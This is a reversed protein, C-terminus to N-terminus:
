PEAREAAVVQNRGAGKARYLAADADQILMEATCRPHTAARSAVGISVTLDCDGCRSGQVQTRVREALALAGEADTAPLIVVFEEGGYRAATDSERVTSRIIKALQRLIDDGVQHGFRDNYSKFHDADILLLSLHEGTRHCHAVTQNLQQTLALRNYLGTLPDTIAQTRLQMNLYRLRTQYEELEDQRSRASDLAEQLARHMSRLKLQAAAQRALAQLAARQRPELRRPRHDLVCLTGLAHGEDTVLPAGAYFRFQQKGTVLPNDEFRSDLTADPVELVHTPDLIAHACFSVDRDTQDLELGRHSKFWQRQEDVFSVLSVPTDCVTAALLTLDDFSQEATSDLVGLIRLAALREKENDPLAASKM